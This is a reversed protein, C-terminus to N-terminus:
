EKRKTNKALYGEIYNMVDASIRSKGFYRYRNLSHQYRNVIARAFRNFTPRSNYESVKNLQNILEKLVPKITFFSLLIM